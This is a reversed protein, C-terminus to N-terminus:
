TLVPTVNHRTYYTQLIPCLRLQMNNSSICPMYLLTSPRRSSPKHSLDLCGNMEKQRLFGAKHFDSIAKDEDYLTEMIEADTQTGWDAPMLTWLARVTAPASRSYQDHTLRWRESIKAASSNNEDNRLYKSILFHMAVQQCNEVSHGCRSFICQTQTRERFPRAPRTGSRAPRTDSGTQHRPDSRADPNRPQCPPRDNQQPSSSDLNSRTFRNIIVPSSNQLSLIYKIWLILETLTLEEPRPDKEPVNDLRDVFRNIDICKQQLASLFFRSQTKEDFTVGITGLQLYYKELNSGFYGISTAQKVNPPMPIKDHLQRKAKKLLAHLFAYACIGSTSDIIHNHYLFIITEDDLNLTGTKYLRLALADNM